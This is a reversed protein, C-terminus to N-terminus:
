DRPSPSTYLLCSTGSGTAFLPLKTGLWLSIGLMFLGAIVSMIYGVFPEIEHQTGAERIGRRLLIPFVFGKISFSVAAIMILRASLSGFQTVLALLGLLMGQFSVISICTRLRSLGLLAMNSLVLLIMMIEITSNM